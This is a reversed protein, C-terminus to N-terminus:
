CSRRRGRGLQTSILRGRGDRCSLPLRMIQPHRLRSPVPGCVVVVVCWGDRRVANGERCRKRPAHNVHRRGNPSTSAASDKHGHLASGRSRRQSGCCPGSKTPSTTTRVSPSSAANEHLWVDLADPATEQVHALFKEAVIAPVFDSEPVFAEFLQELENM